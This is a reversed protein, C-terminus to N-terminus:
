PPRNQGSMVRAVACHNCSSATRLDIRQSSPLETEEPPHKKRVTPGLMRPRQTIQKQPLTKASLPRGDAGINVWQTQRTSTPRTRGNLTAGFQRPTITSKAPTVPSPSPPKSRARGTTPANVCPRVFDAQAPWNTTPHSQGSGGPRHPDPRNIGSTGTRRHRPAQNLWRWPRGTASMPAVNTIFAFGHMQGQRHDSRDGTQPPRLFAALPPTSTPDPSSQPKSHRRPQM